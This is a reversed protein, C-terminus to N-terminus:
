VGVALLDPLLILILAAATAVWLAIKLAKATGTRCGPDTSCAGKRWYVSIFGVALFLVTLAIFVPRYPLLAKVFNATAGAGVGFVWFILPGACCLSSLFASLLSGIATVRVNV